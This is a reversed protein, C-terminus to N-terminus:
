AVAEGLQEVCCCLDRLLALEMTQQLRQDLYCHTQGSRAVASQSDNPGMAEQNIEDVTPDVLLRSLPNTVEGQAHADETRDGAPFGHSGVVERRM